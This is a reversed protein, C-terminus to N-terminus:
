EDLLAFSRNHPAEPGTRRIVRRIPLPSPSLGSLSLVMDEVPIYDIKRGEKRAVKMQQCKRRRGEADAFAVAEADNWAFIREEDQGVVDGAGGSDAGNEM